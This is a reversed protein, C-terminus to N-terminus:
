VLLEIAEAYGAIGKGAITAKAYESIYSVHRYEERSMPDTVHVEVTPIGAAKLADLIAISTHTYAAANIVIGDFKCYYAAQIEEIMMEESNYQVIRGRVHFKRCTKRCLKVLAKYDEKGYLEPERIGLMNMNPGNLILIKKM